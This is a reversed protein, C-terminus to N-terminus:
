LGGGGGGGRGLFCTQGTQGTEDAAAPGGPTESPPRPWRHGGPLSSPSPSPTEPVTRGGRFPTPREDSAPLGHPFVAGDTALPNFCDGRVGEGLEGVEGAPLSGLIWARPPLPIRERRGFRLHHWRPLLSLRLHLPCETRRRPAAPVAQDTLRVVHGVVSDSWRSRHTPAHQTTPSHTVTHTNPQQHSHSPHQGASLLIRSDLPHPEVM